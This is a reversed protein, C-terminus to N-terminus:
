YDLTREALRNARAADARRWDVDGRSRSALSHMTRAKTRAVAFIKHLQPSSSNRKHTHIARVARLRARTHHGVMPMNTECLVERFFKQDGPEDADETQM